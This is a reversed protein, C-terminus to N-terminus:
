ESVASAVSDEPNAYSTSKTQLLNRFEDAYEKKLQPFQVLSRGYNHFAQVIAFYHDPTNPKTAFFNANLKCIDPVSRESTFIMVPLHKMTAERRIVALVEPGKMGPLNVDLVVLDPRPSEVYKGEKRLFRIADSGNDVIHLDTDQNAALALSFCGSIPPITKQSFSLLESRKWEKM